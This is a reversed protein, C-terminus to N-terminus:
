VSLNIRLIGTNRVNEQIDIDKYIFIYSYCRIVKGFMQVGMGEWAHVNRSGNKM